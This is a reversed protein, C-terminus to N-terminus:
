MGHEIVLFLCFVLEKLLKPAEKTIERWIGLNHGAFNRILWALVLISPKKDLTIKGNTFNLSLAQQLLAPFDNKKNPDEWNKYSSTCAQIDAQNTWKRPSTSCFRVLLDYILLKPENLIIRLLNEIIIAFNFLYDLIITSGSENNLVIIPVTELLHLTKIFSRTFFVKLNHINVEQRSLFRKVFDKYSFSTKVLTQYETIYKMLLDMFPSLIPYMQQNTVNILSLSLFGAQSYASGPFFEIDDDLAKILYNLATDIDGTTFYYIAIQYYATGKHFRYKNRAEYDWIAKLLSEQINSIIFQNTHTIEIRIVQKGEKVPPIYTREFLNNCARQIMEHNGLKRIVTLIKDIFIQFDPKNWKENMVNQIAEGQFTFEIVGSLDAEDHILYFGDNEQPLLTVRM